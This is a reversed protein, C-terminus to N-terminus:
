KHQHRREVDAYTPNYGDSEFNWTSKKKIFM